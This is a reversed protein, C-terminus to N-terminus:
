REVSYPDHWDNGSPLDFNAEEAHRKLADVAGGVTQIDDFEGDPVHIDYARSLEMIYEVKELSYVGLDNKLSSDLSVTSPGSIEMRGCIAAIAVQKFTPPERESM